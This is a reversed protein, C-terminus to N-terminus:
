IISEITRNSSFRVTTEVYNQGQIIALRDMSETSKKSSFRVTTEVINQGQIIAYRDLSEIKNKSSFRVTTSFYNKVKSQLWDICLKLRERLQFDLQQKLM